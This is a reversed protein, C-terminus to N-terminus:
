LDKPQAEVESLERRREDMSRQVQKVLRTPIGCARAIALIGGAAEPDLLLEACQEVQESSIVFASQGGEKPAATLDQETMSGVVADITKENTM